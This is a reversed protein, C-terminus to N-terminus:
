HAALVPPARRGISDRLRDLAARAAHRSRTRGVFASGIAFIALPFLFPLNDNRPVQRDTRSARTESSDALTADVARIVGRAVTVASADTLQPARPASLASGGIVVFAIVALTLPLRGFRSALM